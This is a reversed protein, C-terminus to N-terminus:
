DVQLHHRNADVKLDGRSGADILDLDLGCSHRSLLIIAQKNKTVGKINKFLSLRSINHKYKSISNSFTFCTIDIHLYINVYLVNYLIQVKNNIRASRPKHKYISVYIYIYHQPCTLTAILFILTSNGYRNLHCHFILPKLEIM